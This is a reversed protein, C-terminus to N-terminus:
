RIVKYNTYSWLPGAYTVDVRREIADKWGNCNRTSQGKVGSYYYSTCVSQHVDYVATRSVEESLVCNAVVAGLVLAVAAIAGGIQIKAKTKARM